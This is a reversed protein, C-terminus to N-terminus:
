MMVRARTTLIPRRVACVITAETGVEPAEAGNVETVMEAVTLVGIESEMTRVVELLPALAGDVEDVTVLTTAGVATVLM